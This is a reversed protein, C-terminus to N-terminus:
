FDAINPVHKIRVSECMSMTLAEQTPWEIPVQSTSIDNARKLHAGGGIMELHAAMTTLETGSVRKGRTTPILFIMSFIYLFTSLMVFTTLFAILHRTPTEQRVKKYCFCDLLRAVLALVFAVAFMHGKM